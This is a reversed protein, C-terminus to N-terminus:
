DGRPNPNSSYGLLSVIIIRPYKFYRSFYKDNIQKLICRQQPLLSLKILSALVPTYKHNRQCMSFIFNDSLYIYVVHYEANNLFIANMTAM